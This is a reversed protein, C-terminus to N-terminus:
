REPLVANYKVLRLVSYHFSVLLSFIATRPLMAMAHYPPPRTTATAKRNDSNLTQRYVVNGVSCRFIGSGQAAAIDCVFVTRLNLCLLYYAESDISPLCTILKVTTPCCTRCTEISRDTTRSLISLKDMKCYLRMGAECMRLWGTVMDRQRQHRAHQSSHHRQKYLGALHLCVHAM